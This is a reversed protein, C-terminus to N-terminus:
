VHKRSPAPVKCVISDCRVLAFWPTLEDFDPKLSLPDYYLVLIFADGGRWVIPNRVQELLEQEMDASSQSSVAAAAAISGMLAILGVITLKWLYSPVAM